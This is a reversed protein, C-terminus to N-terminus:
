QMRSLLVGADNSELVAFQEARNGIEVAFSDLCAKRKLASMAAWEPFAKQAASVAASVHAQTGASVEGLVRGDIPSFVEFTRESRIREGGIYHDASVEIDAVN